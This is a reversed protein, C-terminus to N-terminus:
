GTPKHYLIASKVQEENIDYLNAINKITEGGNHLKSIIETTINTGFITPQGFQHKPDVVVLKSNELPYYRQALEDLGFDIRKLFPGIISEIDFQKKGDAKIINGLQEYWIKKGDTRLKTAFPYRVNLDKAITTHAKFIQQWPVKEKRLSFYTYFEILTYFNVAKNGKEGFSTVFDNGFKKDWLEIMWRRVRSYQIKLIESVDQTLFIGEGIKPEISRIITM